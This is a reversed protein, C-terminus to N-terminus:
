LESETSDGDDADVQQALGRAQGLPTTTQASKVEASKSASGLNVNKLDRLLQEYGAGPEIRKIATPKRMPAFRRTALISTSSPSPPGRRVNRADGFIPADSENQVERRHHVMNKTCHATSVGLEQEVQPSKNPSREKLTSVAKVPPTPAATAWKSVALGPRAASTRFSTTSSIASPKATPKTTTAQPVVDRMVVMPKSPQQQAKAKGRAEARVEEQENIHHTVGLIAKMDAKMREREAELGPDIPAPAGANPTRGSTTAPQKSTKEKESSRALGRQKIERLKEDAAALIQAHNPGLGRATSTSATKNTEFTGNTVSKVKAPEGYDLIVNDDSSISERPVFPNATTEPQTIANSASTSHVFGLPQQTAPRTAVYEVASSYSSSSTSSITIPSSARHGRGRTAVSALEQTTSKQPAPKLVRPGSAWKSAALSPTTQTARGKPLNKDNGIISDIKATDVAYGSSVQVSDTPSAPKSPPVPPSISAAPKPAEAVSAKPAAAETLQTPLPVGMHKMLGATDGSKMLAKIANWEDMEAKPIAVMEKTPSKSTPSAVLAEKKVEPIVIDMIDPLKRSSDENSTDKTPPNSDANSPFSIGLGVGGSPDGTVDDSGISPSTMSLQGTSPLADTLEAPSLDPDRFEERALRHIPMEKPATPAVPTAYKSALLGKNTDTPGASTSASATSQSPQPKSLAFLGRVAAMFASSDALGPGPLYNRLPKAGSSSGTANSKPSISAVNSMAKPASPILNGASKNEKMAKPKTPAAPVVRVNNNNM